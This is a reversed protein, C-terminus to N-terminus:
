VLTPAQTLGGSTSFSSRLHQKYVRCPPTSPPQGGGREKEKEQGPWYLGQVPGPRPQDQRAQKLLKWFDAGSSDDLILWWHHTMGSSEDKIVWWACVEPLKWLLFLFLFLEKTLLYFCGQPCLEVQKRLKATKPELEFVSSGILSFDFIPWNQNKSKKQVFIKKQFKKKLLFIYFIPNKWCRNCCYSCSKYMSKKVVHFPFAKLKTNGFWIAFIIIMYYIIFKYFLGNM